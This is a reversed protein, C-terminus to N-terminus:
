RGTYWNSIETRFRNFFSDQSFDEANIELLSSSTQLHHLLNIHNDLSVNAAVISPALVNLRVIM